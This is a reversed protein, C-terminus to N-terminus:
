RAQLENLFEGRTPTKVTGAVRQEIPSFVLRLHFTIASVGKILKPLLVIM